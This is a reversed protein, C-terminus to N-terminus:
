LSMDVRRRADLADNEARRVAKSASIAAVIMSIARESTPASRLEQALQQLELKSMSKMETKRDLDIRRDFLHGLSELRMIIDAEIIHLKEAHERKRLEEESEPPQWGETGVFVVVDMALGRALACVTQWQPNTRTAQELQRITGVDLGSKNALQEQTL